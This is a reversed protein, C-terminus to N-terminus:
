NKSFCKLRFLKVLDNNSHVLSLFLFANSELSENKTLIQKYNIRNEM